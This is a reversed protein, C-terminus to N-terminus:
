NRRSTRRATRRAVRRGDDASASTVGLAARFGDDTATISLEDAAMFLMVLVAGLLWKGSKGMM